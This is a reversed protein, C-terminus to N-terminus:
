HLTKTQTQKTEQTLRAQAPCSWEDIGHISGLEGGYHKITSAGPVAGPDVGDDFQKLM